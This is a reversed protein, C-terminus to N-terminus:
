RQVRKQFFTRFSTSFFTLFSKTSILFLILKAMGFYFREKFINFLFLLSLFVQFNLNLIMKLLILSKKSRLTQDQSLILALPLGLVHLDLPLSLLLVQRRGACPHTVRICDVKLQPM